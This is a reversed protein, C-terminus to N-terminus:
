GGSNMPADRYWLGPAISKAGPVDHESCILEFGPHPEDEEAHSPNWWAFTVVGARASASTPQVPLAAPFQEVLLGGEQRWSKCFAVIRAAETADLALIRKRASETRADRSSCAAIMTVVVIGVSRMVM